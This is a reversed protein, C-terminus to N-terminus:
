APVSGVQNIARDLTQDQLTIMRMNIDYNRQTRIMEVMEAAASVTSEELAGPMINGTFPQEEIEEHARYMNLGEKKLLWLDEKKFDVLSVEGVAEGDILIRGNSEFEVKNAGDLFVRNGRSDTVYWEGTQDVVYGENNLAFSGNRTYRTTEEDESVLKFYGTGRIMLDLDNNTTKAAGQENHHTWSEDMYIGGGLPVLSLNSRHRMEPNEFAESVRHHFVAIDKKYGVTNANAINNGVVNVRAQQVLAGAVSNYIGAIM